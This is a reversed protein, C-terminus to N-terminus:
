TYSYKQLLPSVFYFFLLSSFMIWSFPIKQPFHYQHHKQMCVQGFIRCTLYGHLYSDDSIGPFISFLAIAPLSSHLRRHRKVGLYVVTLSGSAGFWMTWCFIHYQGSNNLHLLVLNIIRNVEETNTQKHSHAQKHLCPCM